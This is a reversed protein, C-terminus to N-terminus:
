SMQERKRSFLKNCMWFILDWEVLFHFCIKELSNSLLEHTFGIGYLTALVLIRMAGYVCIIGEYVLLFCIIM